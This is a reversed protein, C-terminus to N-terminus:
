TQPTWWSGVTVKPFGVAILQPKHEVFLALSEGALDQRGVTHQSQVRTFKM